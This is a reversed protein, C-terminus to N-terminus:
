ERQAEAVAWPQTSFTATVTYRVDAGTSPTDVDWAHGLGVGFPYPMGGLVPMVAPRIDPRCSRWWHDGAAYTVCVNRTDADETVRIFVYGSSPATVAFAHCPAGALDDLPEELQPCGPDTARIVGTAPKGIDIPTATTPVPRPPLPQLEPSASPVFFPLSGTSDRCAALTLAAALVLPIAASPSAVLLRPPM